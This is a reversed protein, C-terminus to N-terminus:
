EGSIRVYGLCNRGPLSGAAAGDVIVCVQAYGITFLDPDITTTGATLTKTGLIDSTTTGRVTVYSIGLGDQGNVTLTPRQVDIIRTSDGSALQPGRLAAPNGAKTMGVGIPADYRVRGAGGNGGQNDPSGGAVGGSVDLIATALTGGSRLLLAGGSGGGGGGVTSGIGDSANQGPAGTALVSGVTLNGGATIEVTGGGGGGAGGQGGLGPAISGGGGGASVNGDVIGFATIQADGHQAGGSNANNGGNLGPTGYGGGGGGTGNSGALGAGQCQGPQAVAGGACGGAGPLEFAVTTNNAPVNARPANARLLGTMSIDAVAALRIATPGVFDIPETIAIRSYLDAIDAQAITGAVDDDTLQPLPKLTWDTDAFVLVGNAMQSVRVTLAIPMMPDDFQETVAVSILAAASNGDFGVRTAGVTITLDDVLAPDTPFVSITADPVMHMGQVFVIGKPSGGDGEGELLETPEVGSLILMSPDADRIEADPMADIRIPADIAADIQAEDLNNPNYILSCGSLTSLWFLNALQQRVRCNYARTRM